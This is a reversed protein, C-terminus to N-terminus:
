DTVVLKKIISSSNGEKIELFYIGPQAYGLDFQVKNNRLISYSIPIKRGKLDFARIISVPVDESQAEIICTKRCPNPYIRTHSVKSGPTHTSIILDDYVMGLCNFFGVQNAYVPLPTFNQDDVRTLTWFELGAGYDKFTFLFLGDNSINYYFEKIEEKIGNLSYNTLIKGDYSFETFSNSKHQVLIKQKLPHIRYKKIPLGLDLPEIHRNPISLKEIGTLSPIFLFQNWPDLQFRSDPRIDTWKYVSEIVNQSVHYASIQRNNYDTYYLVNKIFDYDLYSGNVVLGLDGIKEKNRKITNLTFLETHGTIVNFELYLVVGKNQDITFWPYLENIQLIPTKIQTTSRFSLYGQSDLGLYLGGEIDSYSLISCNSNQFLPQITQNLTDLVDINRTNFVLLGRGSYILGFESSSVQYIESHTLDTIRRFAFSRKGSLKYYFGKRVLDWAFVSPELMNENLTLTDSGIIMWSRQSSRAYIYWYQDWVDFSTIKIGPIIKILKIQCDRINFSFISDDKSWYLEHDVLRPLVYEPNSSLTCIERKEGSARDLSIVASQFLDFYLFDSTLPDFGIPFYSQQVYLQHEKFERNLSHLSYISGFYIKSQGFLFTSFLCYILFLIFCYKTKM